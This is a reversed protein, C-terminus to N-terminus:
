RTASPPCKVSVEAHDVLRRANWVTKYVKQYGASGGGDCAFGVICTALAKEFLGLLQTLLSDLPPGGSLCPSTNGQLRSGLCLGASAM